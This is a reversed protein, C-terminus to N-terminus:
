LQLKALAGERLFGFWEAEGELVTILEIEAREGIDLLLRCACTTGLTEVSLVIPATTITKPDVRLVYIEPSIEAIFTPAATGEGFDLDHGLRALDDATANEVSIGVPVDSGDSMSVSLKPSDAAPIKNIEGTPHAKKWPTYRWIHAARDTDSNESYAANM